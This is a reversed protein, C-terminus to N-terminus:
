IIQELHKLRQEENYTLGLTYQKIILIKKQKRLMKRYQIENWIPGFAKWLEEVAITAQEATKSFRRGVVVFQAFNDALKEQEASYKLDVM